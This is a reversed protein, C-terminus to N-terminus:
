ATMGKMGSIIKSMVTDLDGGAAGMNALYRAMILLNESGLAVDDGSMGLGYLVGSLESLDSILGRASLGFAHEMSNAWDIVGQTVDPGTM